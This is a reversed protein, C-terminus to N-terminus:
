VRFPGYQNWADNLIATPDASWDLAEVQARTFRGTVARLFEHSTARLTIAADANVAPAPSLAGDSLEVTIAIASQAAVRQQLLPVYRSASLPTAADAAKVPQALVEVLDYVHIVLDATLAGAFDHDTRMAEAFPVSNRTWEALIQALTMDARDAVQRTTAEDSGLRGQVGALKEAVLGSVHAVVDKVTWLPCAPVPALIQGDRLQSLADILEDRVAGYHELPSSTSTTMAGVYVSGGM